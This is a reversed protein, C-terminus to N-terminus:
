RLNLVSVPTLTFPTVKYHNRQKRKTGAIVPNSRYEHNRLINTLGIADKKTPSEIVKGQSDKVLAEKKVGNSITTRVIAFSSVITQTTKM